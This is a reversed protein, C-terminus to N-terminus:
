TWVRYMALLLQFLNLENLQAITSVRTIALRNADYFNSLAEKRTLTASRVEITSIDLIPEEDSGIAIESGSIFYCHAYYRFYHWPGRTVALGSEFKETLYNMSPSITRDLALTVENPNATWRCYTDPPGFLFSNKRYFAPLYRNGFITDSVDAADAPAAIMGKGISIKPAVSAIDCSNHFAALFPDLEIKELLMEITSAEYETGPVTYKTIEEYLPNQM